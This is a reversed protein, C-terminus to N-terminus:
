KEKRKSYEDKWIEMFKKYMFSQQKEMKCIKEELEQVDTKLEFIRSSLVSDSNGTMNFYEKIVFITLLPIIIILACLCIIFLIEAIFITDFLLLTMTRM